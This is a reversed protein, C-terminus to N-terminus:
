VFSRFFCYGDGLRREYNAAHEVIAPALSTDCKDLLADCLQRLLLTPPVCHGLLEYLKGRVTQLAIPSQERMIDVAISAVYRQWDAQEPRQDATFPYKEFFSIM